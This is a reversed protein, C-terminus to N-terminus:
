LCPPSGVNSHADSVWDQTREVELNRPAFPVPKPIDGLDTATCKDILKVVHRDPLDDRRDRRIVKKCYSQLSPDAVSHGNFPRNVRWEYFELTSMSDKPISQSLALDERLRAKPIRDRIGYATSRQDEDPDWMRAVKGGSSPLLEDLGGLSPDESVKVAERHLYSYYAMYMAYEMPQMSTEEYQLPYVDHSLDADEMVNRYAIAADRSAIKHIRNVLDETDLKLNDQCAIVLLLSLDGKDTKYKTALYEVGIGGEILTEALEELSMEIGKLDGAIEYLDEPLLLWEFASADSDPIPTEASQSM